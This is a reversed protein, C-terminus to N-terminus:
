NGEEEEEENPNDRENEEEEEEENPNPNPSLTTPLMSEISDKPSRGALRVVTKEYLGDGAGKLLRGGKKVKAGTVNKVRGAVASTADAMDKVRKAAGKMVVDQVYSPASSRTMQEGTSINRTDAKDRQALASTKAYAGRTFTQVGRTFSQLKTSFEKEKEFKLLLIQAIFTLVIWLTVLISWFIYWQPGIFPDDAKEQRFHIYVKDNQGTNVDFTLQHYKKGADDDLDPYQSFDINFDALYDCHSPPNYKIVPIPKEQDYKCSDNGSSSTAVESKNSCVQWKVFEQKLPVKKLTKNSEVDNDDEEVRAVPYNTEDLYEFRIKKIKNKSNLILEVILGSIVGPIGGFFFGYIVGFFVGTFLGTVGYVKNTSPDEKTANTIGLYLGSFVSVTILGYIGGWLAGTLEHKGQFTIPNYGSGLTSDNMELNGRLVIKIPENRGTCGVEEEEEKKTQDVVATGRVVYVKQGNNDKYPKGEDDEIVDDKGITYDVPIKDGNSMLARGKDDVVVGDNRVELYEEPMDGGGPMEDPLSYREIRDRRLFTLRQDHTISSFRQYFGLQSQDQFTIRLTYEEETTNDDDFAQPGAKMAIQYKKLKEGNSISVGAGGRVLQLAYANGSPSISETITKEIGNSNFLRFSMSESSALIDTQEKSIDNLHIDFTTLSASSIKQTSCCRKTPRDLSITPQRLSCTKRATATKDDEEWGGITATPVIFFLCSAIYTAITAITAMPKTPSDGEDRFTYSGREIYFVIILFLPWYILQGVFSGKSTCPTHQHHKTEPSSHFTTLIMFVYFIFFFILSTGRLKRSHKRASYNFLFFFVIKQIAFVVAALIIWLFYFDLFNDGEGEPKYLCVKDPDCNSTKVVAYVAVAISALVIWMLAPTEVTLVFYSLGLSAVATVMGILFLNEGGLESPWVPITLSLFAVLIVAAIIVPFVIKFTPVPVDQGFLKTKHLKEENALTTYIKALSVDFTKTQQLKQAVNSTSQAAMSDNVILQPSGLIMESVHYKLSQFHLYYSLFVLVFVTFDSMEVSTHQSLKVFVDSSALDTSDYKSNDQACISVM